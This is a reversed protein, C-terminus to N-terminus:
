TRCCPRLCTIQLQTHLQQPRGDGSLNLFLKETFNPTIKEGGSASMKGPSGKGEPSEKASMPSTALVRELDAFAHATCLEV